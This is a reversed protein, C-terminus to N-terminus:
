DTRTGRPIVPRDEPVRLEDAVEQGPHERDGAVDDRQDGERDDDVAAAPRRAQGGQDRGELRGGVQQEAQEGAGEGVAPVALPHHDGGVDEAGRQDRGDREGVQDAVTVTGCTRATANRPGVMPTKKSPATNPARGTSTPLSRMASALEMEQAACLMTSITSGDSTPTTSANRCRRPQQAEVGEGEGDRRCEDGADHPRRVVGLPLARGERHPLDAEVDALAEGVQDPM